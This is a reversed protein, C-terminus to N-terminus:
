PFWDPGPVDYFYWRGPISACDQSVLSGHQGLEDIQQQVVCSDRGDDFKKPPNATSRIKSEGPSSDPVFWGIASSIYFFWPWDRTFRDTYKSPYTGLLLDRCESASLSFVCFVNRCDSGFLFSKLSLKSQFRGATTSWRERMLSQSISVMMPAWWWPTKSERTSRLDRNHRIARNAFLDAWSTSRVVM